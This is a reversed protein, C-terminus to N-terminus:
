ETGGETTDSELGAQTTAEKGGLIVDDSVFGAEIRDELYADYEERSVVEVNFLMRSHYTGCLEACKGSYTGEKDPTVVFENVRGPIVDEKYLFGTIWFSHIVDPSHLEFRVSEDVPLVLTPIYSGTGFEYVNKGDAVPEDVYNFTWSWQQGVVVVTHDAEPIETLDHQIRVTHSFLVLIMIMPAITYFIELPLNYRTQVPVDDDHRRRYRWIVWFILGWVLAGTLLAVVWSWQWFELIQWAEKTAPEPMAGRKWEDRVEASCSTLLLLGSGLASVLALRRWPSVPRKPLQVGM